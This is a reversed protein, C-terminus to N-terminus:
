PAAPPTKDILDPPTRPGILAPLVDLEPPREPRESVDEIAFRMKGKIEWWANWEEYNEKFSEGTLEKLGTWGQRRVARNSDDLSEIMLLIIRGDKFIRVADLIDIRNNPYRDYAKRVAAITDALEKGTAGGALRCVATAANARVEPFADETLVNMLTRTAKVDGLLGLAFAAAARNGSTDNTNQVSELLLDTAKRDKMYGMALYIGDRRLIAVDDLMKILRGLTRADRLFSVARAAKLRVPDSRDKLMLMLDKMATRSGLKGLSECVGARVRDSSDHLYPELERATADSPRSGALQRVAEDYEYPVPSRLQQVLIRIRNIHTKHGEVAKDMMVEIINEDVGSERLRILEDTTDSFQCQSRSIKKLVIKESLGAKVLKIVDDNTIVEGRAATMGGVFGVVGLAVLVSIGAAPSPRACSM